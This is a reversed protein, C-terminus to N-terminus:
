SSQIKFNFTTHSKFTMNKTSFYSGTKNQIKLTLICYKILDLEIHTLIKLKVPNSFQFYHSKQFDYKKVFLICNNQKSNQYDFHLVEHFDPQIHTITDHSYKSISPLIFNNGKTCIVCATYTILRSNIHFFAPFPAVAGKIHVLFLSGSHFFVPGFYVIIAFGVFDWIRLRWVRWVWSWPCWFSGICWCSYGWIPYLLLTLVWFM